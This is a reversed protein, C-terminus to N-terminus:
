LQSQIPLLGVIKVLTRRLFGVEPERTFTARVGDVAGEWRLKDGEGLYLRYSIQPTTERGFLDLMEEVLAPHEFLVGMETNLSASRPDFNFSGIFGSRDDVAFAKAHLGAGSSGFLSIDSPQAHPQLEFLRVGGKLLPVRCPAYGGHVAAVDTAALSNTLIAVHIGRQALSVLNAIGQEGPVVYPSTIELKKKAAVIVPHLAAMLWNGRKQGLAKEPPDSVIKAQDTWHMPAGDSFM